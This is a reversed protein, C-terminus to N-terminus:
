LIGVPFTLFNTASGKSLSFCSIWKSFKGVKNPVLILVLSLVDCILIALVCHSFGYSSSLVPFLFSTSFCSSLYPVVNYSKIFLATHPLEMSFKLFLISTFGIHLFYPSNLIPILVLSCKM